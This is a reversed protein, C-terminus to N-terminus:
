PIAKVNAISRSEPQEISFIGVLLTYLYLFFTSWFTRSVAWVYHMYCVVVIFTERCLLSKKKGRISYTKTHISLAFLCQKQDGWAIKEHM